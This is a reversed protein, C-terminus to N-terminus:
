RKRLLTVGDAIPLMSLSVRTDEHRRQNFARIAATDESTDAADIVAGSWLTNDIAVLGGPRLLALCKEYYSEYQGKDADIFAFDYRGAGGHRILDDLTDNAPALRLDIKHAVKAEQWYRRAIQTWEDSVDCAILKGDDPLAMAVCLSSYGTFVGVEICQKANMLEVMLAMFAGQSAAIQMQHMELKATEHRLRTLIPHERVGVRDVYDGLAESLALHKHTM